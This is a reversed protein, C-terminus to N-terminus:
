GREKLIFRQVVTIALILAFLLLSVASAYGFLNRVIALNYIYHIPSASSNAPGGNTMVYVQSFIRLTAILQLTVVMSIVNRLYPLVVHRFRQIRNAGDARAADIIEGPIDQLAALFLVFALGLDWWISAISVGILSFRTSTLWPIDNFGLFSLYYNVVGYQTDLMWVWVLGIVTASVVTPAFFLTRALGALPYRSNVFLAFLLGLVTVCPVIILGYLFVNRFAAGVWQDSFAHTFNELGVWKPKGVISWRTFSIYIGFLVPLINFLFFPVAFFAVLLYGARDSEYREPGIDASISVDTRIAAMTM